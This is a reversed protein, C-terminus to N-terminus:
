PRFRRFVAPKSQWQCVDVKAQVALELEERAVTLGADRFATESADIWHGDPAHELADLAKVFEKEFREKMHDVLVDRNM